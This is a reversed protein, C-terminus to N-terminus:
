CYNIVPLDSFWKPEPKVEYYTTGSSETTRGTFTLHGDNVLKEVLKKNRQTWFCGNSPKSHTNFNWYYVWTTAVEDYCENCWGGDTWAEISESGNDFTHVFILNYSGYKDTHKM